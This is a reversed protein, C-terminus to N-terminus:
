VPQETTALQHLSHAVTRFWESRDNLEVADHGSEDAGDGVMRALSRYAIWMDGLFWLFAERDDPDSILVTDGAVSTLEMAIRADHNVRRCCRATLDAPIICFEDRPHNFESIAREAMVNAIVGDRDATILRSEGVGLTYYLQVGASRVNVACTRVFDIQGPSAWAIFHEGDRRWVWGPQRRAM